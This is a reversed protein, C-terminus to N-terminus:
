LARKGLCPKLDIANQFVYIYNQVIKQGKKCLIKKGVLVTKNNPMPFCCIINIGGNDHHGNGLAVSGTLHIKFLVYIIKFVREDKKAYFKRVLMFRKTVQCQFVAPFTSEVM